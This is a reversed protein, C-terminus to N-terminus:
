LLRPAELQQPLWGTYPVCGACVTLIPTEDADEQVNLV